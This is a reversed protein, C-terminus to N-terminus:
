LMMGVSCMVEANAVYLMFGRPTSPLLAPVLVIRTIVRVIDQQTPFMSSMICESGLFLVFNLMLSITILSQQFNYGLALM